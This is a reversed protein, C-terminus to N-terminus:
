TSKLSMACESGGLAALAAGAAFLLAGGSNSRACESFISRERGLSSTSKRSPKVPLGPVAALRPLGDSVSRARLGGESGGGDVGLGRSTRAGRAVGAGATVPSVEGLLAGAAVLSVLSSFKLTSANM